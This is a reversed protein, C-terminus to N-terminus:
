KQGSKEGKIIWLYPKGNKGSLEKCTTKFGGKELFSQFDFARDISIFIKEINL